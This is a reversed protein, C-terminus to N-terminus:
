FDQWHHIKFFDRSHITNNIYLQTSFLCTSCLSCFLTLVFIRYMSGKEFFLFFGCGRQTAEWARWSWFADRQGAAWLPGLPPGSRWRLSPQTAPAGPCAPAGPGGPSGRGRARGTRDQGAGCDRLGCGPREAVGACGRSGLLPRAPTRGPRPLAPRGLGSPGWVWWPRLAALAGVARLWLAGAVGTTRTVGAPRGAENGLHARLRGNAATSCTVHLATGNPGGGRGGGVRAEAGPRPRLAEYVRCRSWWWGSWRSM